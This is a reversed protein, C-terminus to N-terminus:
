YGTGRLCAVIAETDCLAKILLVIHQLVPEKGGEPSM